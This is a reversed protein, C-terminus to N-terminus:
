PKEQRDSRQQPDSREDSGEHSREIRRIKEVRRRPWGGDFRSNVRTRVIQRILREGPMAGDPVLVKADDHQRSLAAATLDHLLAACVGDVM